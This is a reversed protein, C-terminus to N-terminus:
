KGGAFLLAAAFALVLLKAVSAKMFSRGIRGRPGGKNRNGRGEM